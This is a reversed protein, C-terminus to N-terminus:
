QAGTGAITSVSWSRLDVARIMHNETDAVYLTEHALALGQPHHLGAADAPGDERGARGHGITRILRSRGTRDPLTGVVVRNHNSDTIFLRGGAPDALVKGPFALGTAARVSRERAPRLPAKALTGNARGEELAAAIARDLTERNGEGSVVGVVRRDSGVLVLTPWSRVAYEGWLRMNEDIVVPHAIEYRGVAARVTQRQGENTFKASHVGIVLFPEERYKEELYALDPLVHMCNICCYTWFDLLVVQGRLENAFTLPRDTNLWAFGAHLEPARPRDNM